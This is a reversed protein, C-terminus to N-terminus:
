ISPELTCDYNKAQRIYSRVDNAMLQDPDLYTLKILLALENKNPNRKLWWHFAGNRDHESGQEDGEQYYTIQLAYLEDPYMDYIIWEIPFNMKKLFDDKNM